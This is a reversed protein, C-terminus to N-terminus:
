NTESQTEAGFQWGFSRGSNEGQGLIVRRTNATALGVYARELEFIRLKGGMISIFKKDESSWGVRRPIGPGLPGQPCPHSHVFLIQETDAPVSQILDSLLNKARERDIEDINGDVTTVFMDGNQRRCLFAAIEKFSRNKPLLGSLEVMLEKLKDEDGNRLGMSFDTAREGIFRRFYDPTTEEAERFFEVNITVEPNPQIDNM